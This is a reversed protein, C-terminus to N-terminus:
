APQKELKGVRKDLSWSDEQLNKIEKKHGTLIGLIARLNTEYNEKMDLRFEAIDSRVEQFREDVAKFREDVAAFSEQIAVFHPEIYNEMTEMTVVMNKALKQSASTNKAKRPM